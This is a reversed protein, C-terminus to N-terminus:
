IVRAIRSPCRWHLFEAADDNLLRVNETARRRLRDCAYLWFERAWEFAFFNTEPQLASQQVLFTGKGSGIEIELPRQPHPFWERPDPVSHAAPPPVPTHPLPPLGERTLGVEGKQLLRGRGLGFSM